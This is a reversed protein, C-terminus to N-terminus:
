LFTEDFVTLCVDFGKSQPGSFGLSLASLAFHLQWSVLISLPGFTLGNSEKVGQFAATHQKDSSPFISLHHINTFPPNHLAVSFPPRHIYSLLPYYRIEMAKLYCKLLDPYWHDSSRFKTVQCRWHIECRPTADTEVHKVFHAPIEQSSRWIGLLGLVIHQDKSLEIQYRWIM